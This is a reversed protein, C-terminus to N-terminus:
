RIKKEIQAYSNGSAWGVISIISSRKNVLNFDYVELWYALKAELNELDNIIIEDKPFTDMKVRIAFFKKGEKIAERVAEALKDNAFTNM